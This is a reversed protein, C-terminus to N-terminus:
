GYSIINKIEILNFHVSIMSDRLKYFSICLLFFINLYIYIYTCLYQKKLDLQSHEELNTIYKQSTQLTIKLIIEWSLLFLRNVIMKQFLLLWFM